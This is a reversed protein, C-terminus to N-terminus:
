GGKPGGEDATPMEAPMGTGSGDLMFEVVEEFEEAFQLKERWRLPIGEVGDRAGLLGGAIAANTDTDRGVRVVDVLVEELPRPDLLAALAITLSELVYGSAKNPLAKAGNTAAKPGRAALDAVQVLEKGADFAAEVKRAAATIKDMGVGGATATAECSAAARQVADRGAQWAEGQTKGEILARVVANYAACALTCHVDDHTIASIAISETDALGPDPQFLATPICRMLSGNGARGQGAGSTRLDGTQKFRRIGVGTAGGVDRPIQGPVRGPWNRGDYWDVMYQAALQVIDVSPSSSSSSQSRRAQEADRYALLVARTLDTDDTAHGAPWGFHGGGVIDRVGHPHTIQISEWTEFEVTAGLADGAHVGLLAGLIRDRRTLRSTDAM